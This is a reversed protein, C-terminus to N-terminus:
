EGMAEYVGLVYQLAPMYRQDDANRLRDRIETIPLDTLWTVYESGFECEVIYPEFAETTAGQDRAIAILKLLHEKMRRSLHLKSGIQSFTTPIGALDLDVLAEDFRMSNSGSFREIKAEEIFRVLTRLQKHNM